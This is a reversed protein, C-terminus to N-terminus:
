PGVKVQMNKLEWQYTTTQIDPSDIQAIIQHIEYKLETSSAIIQNYMNRQDYQSRAPTHRQQCPHSANEAYKSNTSPHHLEWVSLCQINLAKAPPLTNDAEQLDNKVWTQLKHRTEYKCCQKTNMKGQPHRYIKKENWITNSGKAHHLLLSTM